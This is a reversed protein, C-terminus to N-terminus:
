RLVDTDADVFSAQNAIPQHIDALDRPLRNVAEVLREVRVRASAPAVTRSALRCGAALLRMQIAPPGDAV